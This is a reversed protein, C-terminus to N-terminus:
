DQNSKNIGLPKLYITTIPNNYRNNTYVTCRQHSKKIASTLIEVIGMIHSIYHCFSCPFEIFALLICLIVAFLCFFIWLVTDVWFDFLQSLSKVSNVKKKTATRKCQKSATCQHLTRTARLDLAIRFVKNKRNKWSLM